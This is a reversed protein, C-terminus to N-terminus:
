GERLHDLAHRFIVAEADAKLTLGLEFRSVWRVLGSLQMGELTTVTVPTKEDLCRFLRKDSCPYRDQPKPVPDKPAGGRTKDTKLVKRVRKWVDPSWAAMAQLKHIEEPEGGEVALNFSYPTMDSVVGTLRRRGHMDLTLPEGSEAFVELISHTRFQVRHAEFRQRALVRDLDAHGMAVQTALARSLDHRKMLTVAKDQRAMRELAESLTLKGHAVAMAMQFPMGTAALEEAKKRAQEESKGHKADKSPAFDQVLRRAM